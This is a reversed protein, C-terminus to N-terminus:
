AAVRSAAHCREGLAPPPFLAAGGKAHGYVGCRASPCRSAAHLRPYRTPCLSANRPTLWTESHISRAGHRQWRPPTM